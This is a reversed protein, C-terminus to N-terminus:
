TSNLLANGELIATTPTGGNDYVAVIASKENATDKVMFVGEKDTIGTSGVGADALSESYGGTLRKHGEVINVNDGNSLQKVYKKM